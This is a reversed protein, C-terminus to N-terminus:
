KCPKQVLTTIRRNQKRIQELLPAPVNGEAPEPVRPLLSGYGVAGLIKRSEVGNDLLWKRVRQARQRSLAQNRSAAGESSTHGEIVVGLSDCQKMYNLLNNLNRATEPRSLDFDDSNVRFYIGSFDTRDGALPTSPLGKLPGTKRLHESYDAPAMGKPCGSNLPDGPLNPCQDTGDPVGDHDSDPNLPDTFLRTVEVGDGLQDHDTDTELPDTRYLRIEQGDRLGDGDTDAALPNTNYVIAEAGDTLGDGDTDRNNPSTNYKHIEDYDSLNDGDTDAKYPDTMYRNREDRDTLGDGDSDLTSDASEPTPRRQESRVSDPPRPATDMRPGPPQEQVSPSDAPPEPTQIPPPPQDEDRGPHYLTITLGLGLTGFYDPPTDVQGPGSGAGTEGSDYDLYHAYGDLYDTSNVYFLAQLYLGFRDSFHYEAGGGVPMVMVTHEYDGTM